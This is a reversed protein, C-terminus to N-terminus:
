QAAEWLLWAGFGLFISGTIINIIYIVKDNLVKRLRSAFYAVCIETLFVALLAGAFFSVNEFVEFQYKSKLVGAAGVWEFFNAPNLINLFFGRAINKYILGSPEIAVGETNKTKKFVTALGIGILLLGGFLQTWFAVNMGSPLFAQVGGYAIGLLALDALIVGGAIYIAARFGNELSAKILSFFVPGLAFSFAFGVPLGYLFASLSFIKNSM